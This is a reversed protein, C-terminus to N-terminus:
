EGLANTALTGVNLANNFTNEDAPLELDPMFAVALHFRWEPGSRGVGSSRKVSATSSRMAPRRTLPGGALRDNPKVAARAAPKRNPGGRVVGSLKAPSGAVHRNM